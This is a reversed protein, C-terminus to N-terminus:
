PMALASVCHTTPCIWGKTPAWATPIERGMRRELVKIGPFPNDPGPGTLYDAFRSM